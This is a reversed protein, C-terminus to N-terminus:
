GSPAVLAHCPLLGSFQPITGQGNGGNGHLLICVPHGGDPAPGDPVSISMPYTWGGPEQSWAKTIEIQTGNTLSQAQVPQQMCPVLIFLLALLAIRQMFFSYIIGGSFRIFSIFNVVKLRIMMRGRNLVLDTSPNLCAILIPASERERCLDDHPHGILSAERTSIGVM